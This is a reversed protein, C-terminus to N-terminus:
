SIHKVTNIIRILANSMVPIGLKKGVYRAIVDAQNYGRIKYREKHIPVPIIVDVGLSKIYNKLNNVIENGYFEGYKNM